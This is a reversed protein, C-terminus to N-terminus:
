KKIGLEVSWLDLATAFFTNKYSRALINTVHVLSKFVKEKLKQDKMLVPSLKSLFREFNEIGADILLLSFASWDHIEYAHELAVMSAMPLSTALIAAPYIGSEILHKHIKAKSPLDRLEKLPIHKSAENFRCSLQELTKDDLYIMYNLFLMMIFTHDLKSLKEDQTEVIEDLKQKYTLFIAEPLLAGQMGEISADIFRCIYRLNHSPRREDLFAVVDAFFFASELSSEEYKHDFLSKQAVAQVHAEYAHSEDASFLSAMPHSAFSCPDINTSM